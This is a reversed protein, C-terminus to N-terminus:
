SSSLGRISDRHPPSKGCGYLGVSLGTCHTRTEKGPTFRSLHPTSWGGVRKTKMAQERTFKVKSEYVTVEM